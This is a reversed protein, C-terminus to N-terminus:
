NELIKFEKMRRYLTARSIGLERAAASRNGGCNQMSSLIINRAIVGSNEDANQFKRLLVSDCNKGGVLGAESLAYDRIKIPLDSARIAGEKKAVLLLGRAVNILERVNGPWHYKCLLEIVEDEVEVEGNDRCLYYAFLAPIDDRRKRLPALEIIEGAIRYFFDSRMKGREVLLRDDENTAAILRINISREKTEGIRRVWGDQLARLLKAQKCSSLESIEDLFLTGGSAQEILGEKDALAGTFAGKKHGFIESEFLPEPLNACNVAIFPGRCRDSLRHILRAILEKGTGTEGTILVPISTGALERARLVTEVMCRSRAVISGEILCRADFRIKSTRLPGKADIDRSELKRTLDRCRGAWNELGVSSFLHMAEVAYIKADAICEEKSKADLLNLKDM